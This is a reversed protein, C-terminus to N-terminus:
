RSIMKHGALYKDGTKAKRAMSFLETLVQLLASVRRSGTEQKM